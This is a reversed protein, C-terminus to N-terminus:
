WRGGNRRVVASRDAEDAEDGAADPRSDAAEAEDAAELEPAAAVNSLRDKSGSRQRETPLGPTPASASTRM